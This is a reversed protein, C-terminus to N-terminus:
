LVLLPGKNRTPLPVPVHLPIYIINLSIHKKKASAQLKALLEICTAWIKTTDQVVCGGGGGGGGVWGGM